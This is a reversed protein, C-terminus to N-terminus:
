NKMQRKRAQKILSKATEVSINSVNNIKMLQRRLRGTQRIINEPNTNALASVTGLGSHMLLAAEHFSLNLEYILESIGRIRRLNKLSNGDKQALINLQYDDLETLDKWTSLGSKVLSKRESDFNKPLENILHESM